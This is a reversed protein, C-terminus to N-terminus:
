TKQDIFRVFINNQLQSHGHQVLAHWSNPGNLRYLGMGFNSPQDDLVRNNLPGELFPRAQERWFVDSTPTQASEVIAICYQQHQEPPDQSPFYFTHPLRTPGGDIIHLQVITPAAFSSFHPNSTVLVDQLVSYPADIATAPSEKDPDASGM